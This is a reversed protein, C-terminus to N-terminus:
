PDALFVIWLEKASEQLCRTFAKENNESVYSIFALAGIWFCIIVVLLVLVHALIRLTM